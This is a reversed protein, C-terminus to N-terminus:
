SPVKEAPEMGRWVQPDRGSGDLPLVCRMARGSGAERLAVPGARCPRHAYPCCDVFGCQTLVGVPRPVVGPIFGLPERRRTRGPVPVSRMLGETYPHIPHGIVDDTRGTEVMQGGYMVAIRDAVGAVVGIDHTIVILGVGTERQVDVLLKLIQAQITVDLATTPEDAILLEPECLFAMAIMVRQRLGGSLQHPYQGLREEPSPIRVQRLLDLARDRAAARSVRRHQRLVEVMQDGITYCPDLATMPDQFIMAVREGRMRRWERPSLGLLSRGALAIHEAKRRAAAPLLGMIALSTLSKGCGSEGVIALTEGRELTLDVGRVPRLLANNTPIEVELGRVELLPASV